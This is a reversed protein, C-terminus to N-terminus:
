SEQLQGLAKECPKIQQNADNFDKAYGYVTDFSDLRQISATRQQSLPLQEEDNDDRLNSSLGDVEAAAKAQEYQCKGIHNVIVRLWSNDRNTFQHAKLEKLTHKNQEKARELMAQTTSQTQALAALKIAQSKEKNAAASNAISDVISKFLKGWASNAIITVKQKKNSLASSLGQVGDKSNSHGTTSEFFM